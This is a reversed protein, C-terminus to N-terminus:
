KYIFDMRRNKQAAFKDIVRQNFDQMKRVLQKEISLMALASLRDQTMTNRLFTKIRKLTSFCREAESTSMPITVMIKLLKTSGTRTWQSDGEFLLCPFCFLAMKVDCGTLWKHKKYWDSNFTRRYTHAKGKVEQNLTLNPQHYVLTKIELIESETLKNFSVSQLRHVSNM